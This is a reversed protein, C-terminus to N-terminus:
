EALQETGTSSSPTLCPPPPPHEGNPAVAPAGGQTSTNTPRVIMQAVEARFLARQLVVFLMILSHADPVCTALPVLRTWQM